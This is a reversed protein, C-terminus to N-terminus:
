SENKDKDKSATLQARSQKVKAEEAAEKREEAALIANVEAVRKTIATTEKQYNAARENFAVVAAADKVNLKARDQQLAVYTQMLGNQKIVLEKSEVKAIRVAAFSKLEPSRILSPVSTQLGAVQAALLPIRATKGGLIMHNGAMLGIGSGACLVMLLITSKWWATGFAGHVSIILLFGAISACVYFLQLKPPQGTAVLGKVLVALYIVAVVGVTLVVMLGSSFAAGLQSEKRDIVKAAGWLVVMTALWVFAGAAILNDVGLLSVADKLFSVFAIGLEDKM